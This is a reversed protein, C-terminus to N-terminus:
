RRNDGHRGHAGAIGSSARLVREAVARYAMATEAWRPPQNANAAFHGARLYGSLALGVAATDDVPVATISLQSARERYPPLDYVFSHTGLMTAESPVFGYGEYSSLYLLGKARAITRHLETEPLFGSIRFGEFVNAAAMDRVLKPRASRPVGTILLDPRAAGMEAQVTAWVSPIDALGKSSRHAVCVVTNSKSPHDPGCSVHDLGLPAVTREQPLQFSLENAESLSFASISVVGSMRRASATWIAGRFLRSSRSFEKPRRLHRLDCLTGVIPPSAGVLSCALNPVIVVDAGRALRRLPFEVQQQLIRRPPVSVRPEVVDLGVDDARHRMSGPGFVKVRDGPFAEAWGRLLGEM